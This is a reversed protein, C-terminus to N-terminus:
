GAEFVGQLVFGQQYTRRIRFFHDASFVVQQALRRDQYKIIQFQQQKGEVEIDVRVDRHHGLM